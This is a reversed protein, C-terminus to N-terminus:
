GLQCLRELFSNVDPDDDPWIQYEGNAHDNYDGLLKFGLLAVLYVKNADLDVIVDGTSTSRCGEGDFLRQISSDNWWDDELSNTRIYAEELEQVELEAVPILSEIKVIDGNSCSMFNPNHLVRVKMKKQGIYFFLSM